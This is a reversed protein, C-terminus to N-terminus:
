ILKLANLLGRELAEEYSSSIFKDRNDPSNKLLEIVLEMKKKSDNAKFPYAIYGDQTRDVDIDVKHIDRFWQQLLAQTPASYFVIGRKDTNLNLSTIIDGNSTYLSVSFENFGKEKALKATDFTILHEKM